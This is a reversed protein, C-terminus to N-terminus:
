EHYNMKALYICLYKLLNLMNKTYKNNILNGLDEDEEAVM